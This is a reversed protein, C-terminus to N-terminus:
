MAYLTVYNVPALGQLGDAVRVVTLWGDAGHEIVQFQEGPMMALEAPNAGSPQFPAICVARMQQRAVREHQLRADMQQLEYQARARTEDSIRGNVAQWGAAVAGPQMPVPQMPMSTVLSPSRQVPAPARGGQLAVGSKRRTEAQARAQVQSPHEWATEGTAEHVWFFCHFPPVGDHLRWPGVIRPMSAVGAQNQLVWQPPPQEPPRVAAPQPPPPSPSAAVAVAIPPAAAMSRRSSPVAPPLQAPAAATAVAPPALSRRSSPVAPPPPAAAAAAAAKPPAPPNILSRRTREVPESQPPPPPLSPPPPPPPPLSRADLQPSFPEGDSSLSALDDDNVAHVEEDDLSSGSAQKLLNSLATMKRTLAQQASPADATSLPAKKDAHKPLPPRGKVGAEATMAAEEQQAARMLAHSAASPAISLRVPKVGADSFADRWGKPLVNYKERVSVAIEAFSHTAFLEDVTPVKSADRWSYFEALEQKRRRTEEPTLDGTVIVVSRADPQKTIEFRKKAASVPSSAGVVVGAPAAALSWSVETSSMKRLLAHAHTKAGPTSLTSPDDIIRREVANIDLVAASDAFVADCLGILQVLVDAAALEDKARTEAHPSAAKAGGGKAAPAAAALSAGHSLLLVPGLERALAANDAACDRWLACCVALIEFRWTALQAVAGALLSAKDAVSEAANVAQAAKLLETAVDKSVLPKETAALLHRIAAALVRPTKWACLERCRQVALECDNKKDMAEFFSRLADGAALRDVDAVKVFLDEDHLAAYRLHHLIQPLSLLLGRQADWKVSQVVTQPETFGHPKAKASSQAAPPSRSAPPSPSTDSGPMALRISPRRVAAPSVPPLLEAKGEM